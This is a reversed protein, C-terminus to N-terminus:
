EEKQNAKQKAAAPHAPNLYRKAFFAFDPCYLGCLDCGNCKDDHVMVPYHYGKRNFEESFDLAGSPCFQICFGCGKCQETKLFTAGLYKLTKRAKPKSGDAAM